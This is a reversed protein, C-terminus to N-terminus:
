ILSSKLIPCIIMFFLNLIFLNTKFKEDSIGANPCFYVQIYPLGSRVQHTREEEHTNKSHRNSFLKGDSQDFM